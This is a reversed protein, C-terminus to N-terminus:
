VEKIHDTDYHIGRTGYNTYIDLDGRDRAKKACHPCISFDKDRNYWQRGKTEKGCCSCKLTIIPGYYTHVVEERYLSM